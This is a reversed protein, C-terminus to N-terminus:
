SGVELLTLSLQAAANTLDGHYEGTEVSSSANPHNGNGTGWNKIYPWETAM